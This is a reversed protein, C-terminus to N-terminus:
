DDLALHQGRHKLGISRRPERHNAVHLGLGNKASSHTGTDVKGSNGGNKAPPKDGYVQKTLSHTGAGDNHATSRKPSDAAQAHPSSIAALAATTLLGVHTRASLALSTHNM